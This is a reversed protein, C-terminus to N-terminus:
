ATKRRRLMVFIGLAGLLLPAGAPLPVPSVPSLSFEVAELLVQENGTDIAGGYFQDNWDYGMILVTGLGYSGALIVAEDGPRTALVEVGAGINDFRRFFETAFGNTNYSPGSRDDLNTAQGAATFTITTGSAVFGGGVDRADLLNATDLAWDSASWETILLGGNNVFDVVAQNGNVRNLILVDLNALAPATLAVGSSSHGNANLFSSYRDSGAVGVSVASAATASMAGLVLGLLLKRM